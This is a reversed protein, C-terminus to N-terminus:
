MYEPHNKDLWEKVIGRFKTVDEIIEEVESRTVQGGRDYVSVNRKTRCLDFYEALEAYEDGMVESLIRFTMWHHGAGYTEYGTCYLPITALTLAADYGILFRRDRSLSQISADGLDRNALGLLSQIEEKSTKHTRLRGEALWSEFNM